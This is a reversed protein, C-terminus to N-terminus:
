GTVRHRLRLTAIGLGGAFAAITLRDRVGAGEALFWTGWTTSLPLEVDALDAGVRLQDLALAAAQRAYRRALWTKGAGAWCGGRM